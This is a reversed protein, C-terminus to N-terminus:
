FQYNVGLRLGIFYPLYKNAVLFTHRYNNLPFRFHISANVFFRDGLMPYELGATLSGSCSNKNNLVITGSRPSEDTNYHFGASSLLKISKTLQLKNLIELSFDLYTVRYFDSIQRNSNVATGKFDFGYELQGFSLRIGESDSLFRSYSIGFSRVLVSSKEEILINEGLTSSRYEVSNSGFDNSFGLNTSVEIVNRYVIQGFSNQACFIIICFIILNTIKM